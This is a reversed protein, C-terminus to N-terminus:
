PSTGQSSRPKFEVVAVGDFRGLLRVDYTASANAALWDLIGHSFEYALVLFRQQRQSPDQLFNSAVRIAEQNLTRPLAIVPGSVKYYSLQALLASEKANETPMLEHDAEPFDSCILMPAHDASANKEAFELAYKWSYAHLRYLPSSLYQYATTGVVAVCFAVRIARSDVRSMMLAWYLAIGPIAVVRHRYVFIHLPTWVSVGYLVLIPVLGVSACLLVRWSDVRRELNFRRTATAALATAALIYVMWGPALTWGLEGMGPPVDFVHAGRTRFMYLLGPIVPLIAVAFAALAIGVQRWSTKGLGLALALLCVLLVPLIVAFLFHFYVIFAAAVGLAAALWNSDSQRLRVLAFIAANIALAAFAYPRVDIAAFIIVPHVCFLVTTIFAVDQDFLERAARYLLYAAGLMALISPVRLAIESTGLIKTFFWLVCSYAPFSLGGQRSPIQWFGKAIQWYSGTEDLWLPARIAIFWLSISVLVALAYIIQYNHDQAPSLCQPQTQSHAPEQIQPKSVPELTAM